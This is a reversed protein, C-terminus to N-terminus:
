IPLADNSIIYKNGAGGLKEKQLKGLKIMIATSIVFGSRDLPQVRLVRSTDPSLYYDNPRENLKNLGVGFGFTIGRLEQSKLSQLNFLIVTFLLLAKM